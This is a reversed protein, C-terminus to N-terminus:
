FNRNAHKQPRMLKFLIADGAHMGDQGNSAGGMKEIQKVWVNWIVEDILMPSSPGSTALPGFEARGLEPPEMQQRQQRRHMREIQQQSQQGFLGVPASKGAQGALSPQRVHPHEVLKTGAQPDASQPLDVVTQALTENLLGGTPLLRHGQNIRGIQGGSTHTEFFLSQCM